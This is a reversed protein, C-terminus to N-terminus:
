GPETSILRGLVGGLRAPDHRPWEVTPDVLDAFEVDAGYTALVEPDVLLAELPPAVRM